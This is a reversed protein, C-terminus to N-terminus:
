RQGKTIYVSSNFIFMMFFIREAMKSKSAVTCSKASSPPTRIVIKRTGIKYLKTNKSINFLFCTIRIKYLINLLQKFKIELM